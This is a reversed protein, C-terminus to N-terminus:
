KNDVDLVVLSGLCQIFMVEPHKVDTVVKQPTFYNVNLGKMVSQNIVFDPKCTSFEACKALNYVDIAKAYKRLVYLFGNSSAISSIEGTYDDEYTIEAIIMVRDFDYIHLLRTNEELVICYFYNEGQQDGFNASAFARIRSKHEYTKTVKCNMSKKLWEHDCMAVHTSNKSDQYYYIVSQHGYRPIVDTHFFTIDGPSPTPTININTKNLKNIWSNEVTSGNENLLKYHM